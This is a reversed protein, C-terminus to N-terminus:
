DQSNNNFHSGRWAGDLSIDTLDLNIESSPPFNLARLKTSDSQMGKVMPVNNMKLNQRCVPVSTVSM